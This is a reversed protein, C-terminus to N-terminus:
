VNINLVFHHYTHQLSVGRVANCRVRQKEKLAEFHKLFILLTFPFTYQETEQIQVEKGRSKTCTISRACGTGKRDVAEDLCKYTVKWDLAPLNQRKGRFLYITDNGAVPSM